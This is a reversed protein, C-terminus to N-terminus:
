RDPCIVETVRKYGPQVGDDKVLIVDCRYAGGSGFKPILAPARDNMLKPMIKAHVLFLQLIHLQSLSDPKSDSSTHSKQWRVACISHQCSVQGCIM